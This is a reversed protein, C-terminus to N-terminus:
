AEPAQQLSEAPDFEPMITNKRMPLSGSKVMELVLSSLRSAFQGLPLSYHALRPRLWQCLPNGDRCLMSIQDPIAIQRSLLHTLTAVAAAPYLHFAATVAGKDVPLQNWRSVLDAPDDAYRIVSCLRSTDGSREVEERFAMETELDGALPQAPVVLALHRHGRGLLTGAAHRGLAPYNREITPIPIGPYASGLILAPVGKEAFWEQTTRSSLALLYASSDMKKELERLSSGPRERGFAENSIVELQIDNEALTRSLEDFLFLRNSSMAYIPTTSILTVTAQKRVIASKRKQLIKRNKGPKTSILKERSLIDLAGRVTPRSVHLRRSLEREGPMFDEWVGNMLAERLSEVVQLLLSQRQPIKM